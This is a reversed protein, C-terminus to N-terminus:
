VFPVFGAKNYFMNHFVVCDVLLRIACHSNQVASVGLGPGNLFRKHFATNGVGHYPSHFKIVAFFNFIHQGIQPNDVIGVIGEAQQPNDIYGAATNTICRDATKGVMACCLIQCQKINYGARVGDRTQSGPRFSGQFIQGLQNKLQQGHFILNRNSFQYLRHQNSSVIPGRISIKM